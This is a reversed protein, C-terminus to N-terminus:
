NLRASHQSRYELKLRSCDEIAVVFAVVASAVVDFAAALQEGPESPVVICHSAPSHFASPSAVPSPVSIVPETRQSARLGSPWIQSNVVADGVLGAAPEACNSYLAVAAAAAVHEDLPLHKQFFELGRFM